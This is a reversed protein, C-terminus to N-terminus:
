SSLDALEATREKVRRELTDNLNQLELAHQQLAGKTQIRQMAIAVQDAVTRMLEVEESTFHPRTKTGFSLTGILRGQAMLPHCCYAQIGYSKVLDTRPDPTHFIDEAIIRAHELAVCGCVAVGYDLWEIEKAEENPIGAYANLYLRGASEDVLFNFFAHCDLHKMVNRCLEEVIRQPDETALLRGATESLLRFRAESQRVAEEARKRETIDRNSGRVGLYEGKDSFVPQCAHSIWRISGDAHVIRFEVRSVKQKEEDEEIHRDLIARDDLHVIRRRLDSDKIFEQADYGTIRKSSPSAYIFQGQPNIWFEFDYTNDAVIRYKNESKKLEEEARKRETLDQM